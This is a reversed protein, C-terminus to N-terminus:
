VEPMENKRLTESNKKSSESVLIKLRRREGELLDNGLVGGKPGREIKAVIGPAESRLATLRLVCLSLACGHTQLQNKKAENKKEVVCATKKKEVEVGRERAREGRREEGREARGGERGIHSMM